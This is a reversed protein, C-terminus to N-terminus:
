FCFVSTTNGRLSYRESVKRQPKRTLVLQVKVDATHEDAGESHTESRLEFSLKRNRADDFYKLINAKHYPGHNWGVPVFSDLSDHLPLVYRVMPLNAPEFQYDIHALFERCNPKGTLCKFLKCDHSIVEGAATFESEPGQSEFEELLLMVPRGEKLVAKPDVSEFDQVLEPTQNNVWEYLAFIDIEKAPYAVCARNPSCYFIGPKSLGFNREIDGLDEVTFFGIERHFHNEATKYFEWYGQDEKRGCFLVLPETALKARLEQSSVEQTLHKSLIDEIGAAIADNDPNDHWEFLFHQQKSYVIVAPVQKLELHEVQQQTEVHLYGFTIRTDILQHQAALDEFAHKIGQSALCWKGYVYLVLYPFDSTAQDLMSPTLEVIDGEWKYKSRKEARLLLGANVVSYIILTKTIWNM